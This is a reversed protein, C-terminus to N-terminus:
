KETKAKKRLKLEVGKENAATQFRSVAYAAKDKISLNNDGSNVDMEVMIERIDQIDLLNVAVCFFTKQRGANYNELLYNLIDMKEIQEQNYADVGIHKAKEIDKFQNRHTIFSDYQDAGEYKICPFENCEFCYELGGHEVSCKAISCSHHPGCGCGPCYSGIHMSCLGCNLGCLSFYQNNRKFEKM